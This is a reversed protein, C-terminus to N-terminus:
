HANDAYFVDRYVVTSTGVRCRHRCRPDGGCDECAHPGARAGAGACTYQIELRKQAFKLKHVYMHVMTRVQWCTRVLPVYTYTRLVCTHGKWDSLQSMVNYTRVHARPGLAVDVLAALGGMSPCGLSVRCDLRRLVGGLGVKDWENHLSSAVDVPPGM